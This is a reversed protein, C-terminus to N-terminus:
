HRLSPSGKEMERSDKQLATLVQAWKKNRSQMQVTAISAFLEEAPLDEPLRTLFQAIHIFDMKTLIDEFLKLLGLATRFLFEEGDRCFVDWVRCALDLPLSKSYLTFIWDILYIDPTLNNKKFHAFLKPLNEEFFVEFAAFYTLMLGHDVRFFAMQCPKNLLNSFAIFADATDLNLILVAAIFSMGQVQQFICLNPFTRSIDLKILELSAERDAASFGADENEVESGGTSFCRWREKARALCIDFLEHTINLENGIALSWVKGRVSPPIGQWWLDRVKRSCWMTEWNPLIENNWTLVANGISEELRCREELQKKRRQAEKLERKKAQVVMEEYQQRHKQAEEAPKAPLNAPRDELILATTSLPEFDLHKRVNQKPSPPRSPRGAKDEYEKQIKKSEKQANERLPVKGFLKWGLDNQKDLRANQKRALLNRTFFNSFPGLIKLKRGEETEDVCDQQRLDRTEKISSLTVDTFQPDDDNELTVIASSSSTVVLDLIDENSVSLTASLETGLSSVSCVSVNDSRNLTKSTPSYLKVSDYGTRPFTSSKRVSQEREASTPGPPAYSPLPCASQCAREPIIESESQKRKVHVVSCPVPEPNGIELTPIGSDVSKLSHRDELAGLKLKPGYESLSLSRPAKLNLHQLSQVHNGPRGDLIGMLAVGNTTTSLNGDTM